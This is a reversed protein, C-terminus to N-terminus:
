LGCFLRHNVGHSRTPEMYSREFDRQAEYLFGAFDESLEGLMPNDAIIFRAARMDRPRRIVSHLLPQIVRLSGRKSEICSDDVFSYFAICKKSETEIRHANGHAFNEKIHAACPLAMIEQAKNM